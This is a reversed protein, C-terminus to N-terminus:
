KKKEETKSAATDDILNNATNRLVKVQVDKAIEVMLYDDGDLKAITGIIGGATVIRDGKKLAKLMATQAELKKQQPRILFLYLVFLILFYPLFRMLDSGGVDPPVAAPAATQAWATGIMLSSLDIM